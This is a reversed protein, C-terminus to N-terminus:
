PFEIVCTTGCFTIFIISPAIDNAAVDGKPLQLGGKIEKISGNDLRAISIKNLALKKKIKKTKM